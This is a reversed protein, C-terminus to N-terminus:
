AAGKAVTVLVRMDPPDTTTLELEVGSAADVDFAGALEGLRTGSASTPYLTTAINVVDEWRVTPWLVGLQTPMQPRVRLWSYSDRGNTLADHLGAVLNRQPASIGLKEAVTGVQARTANHQADDGNHHAVHLTWARAGTTDARDALGILRDAGILSSALEGLSDVDVGFSGLHALDSALSRRGYGTVSLAFAQPDHPMSEVEVVLDKTEAGFLTALRAPQAPDCVGALVRVRDIGDNGRTINTSIALRDFTRPVTVIATKALEPALASLRDFLATLDLRYASGLTAM